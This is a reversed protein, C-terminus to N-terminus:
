NATQKLFHLDSDVHKLNTKIETIDREVSNMRSKFDFVDLKLTRVLQYFAGTAFVIGAYPIMQLWVPSHIVGIM